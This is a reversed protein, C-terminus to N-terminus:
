NLVLIKGYEHKATRPLADNLLFKTLNPLLYFTRTYSPKYTYCQFTYEDIPYTSL